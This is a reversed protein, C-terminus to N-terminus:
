TNFKRRLANEVGEPVLGRINGGLSAVEKIVTSTLYIYEESPMMFVTEIESVLRRNMLAMMLEYEFDSVARLGRVIAVEKKQRAYDVLLGEFPEVEVGPMDKVADRIMDIREEITFLPEKKPNTTVAVIVRDFIGRSRKVIDLHGNTVPDFTGPCIATRM